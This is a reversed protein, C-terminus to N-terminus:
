KESGGEPLSRNAIGFSLNEAPSTFYTRGPNGPFAPRNTVPFRTPYPYPGRCDM